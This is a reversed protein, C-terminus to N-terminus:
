LTWSEYFDQGLSATQIADLIIRIESIMRSILNVMYVM